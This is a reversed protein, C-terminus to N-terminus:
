CASGVVPEADQDLGLNLQYRVNSYTFKELHLFGFYLNEKDLRTYSAGVTIHPNSPASYVVVHGVLRM